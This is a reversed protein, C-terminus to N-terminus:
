FPLVIKLFDRQLITNEFFYSLLQLSAEVVASQLITQKDCM